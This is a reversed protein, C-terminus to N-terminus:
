YMPYVFDSVDGDQEAAPDRWLREALAVLPEITRQVAPPEAAWLERLRADLEIADGVVPWELDARSLVTRKRETFYSGCSPDFGAPFFRTGSAALAEAAPVVVRDFFDGALDTAAEPAGPADTSSM